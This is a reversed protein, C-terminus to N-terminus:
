TVYDIDCWLSYKAPWLRSPGLHGFLHCCLSTDQPEHYQQPCTPQTDLSPGITRAFVATRLGLRHRCVGPVSRRGRSDGVRTTTAPLKHLKLRRWLALGLYVRGFQRVREVRVQKVNVERWLPRSDIKDFELQEPVERGELLADSREM